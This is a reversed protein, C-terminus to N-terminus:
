TTTRGRTPAAGLQQLRGLEDLLCWQEAVRGGAVRYISIEPVSIRRGTPPLDRFEGEHTGTSTYRTVVTSGETVIAEVAEHWDPFAAKARRIGEAAGQRGRREPLHSSPPFHGVFDEAYVEDVATLDGTNWIDHLRRVVSRPTVSPSARCPRRVLEGSCNPCKLAMGNACAACFTCEYSCVFAEATLGLTGGCRECTERMELAM